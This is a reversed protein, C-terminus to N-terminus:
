WQGAGREEDILDESPREGVLLSGIRQREEPSLEAGQEGGSADVLIGAAPLRADIQAPPPVEEHTESRITVDVVQGEALDVPELLRLHGEQYIAHVSTDM